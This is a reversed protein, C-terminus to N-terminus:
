KSMRGQKIENTTIALVNLVEGMIKGVTDVMRRDLATETYIELRQFFSELRSFIEFLTDQSARINKATSLLIGVATFIAKAPPFASTVDGLTESFAHLVKVTPDLWRTWRESRQRSQNLEQLQQQLVDLISSPSRCDQLQAALPHTLLDKKTRKKYSELANDFILQFNSSTSIPHAHSM